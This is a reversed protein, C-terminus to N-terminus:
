CTVVTTGNILRKKIKQIHAGKDKMNNSKYEVIHETIGYQQVQVTHASIDKSEAQKEISTINM